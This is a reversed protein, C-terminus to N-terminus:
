RFDLRRVINTKDRLEFEEAEVSWSDDLIKKMSIYDMNNKRCKFAEMKNRKIINITKEEINEKQNRRKKQSGFLQKVKEKVRKKEEELVKERLMLNKEVDIELFNKREKKKKEIRKDRLFQRVSRVDVPKSGRRLIQGKKRKLNKKLKKKSNEEEYIRRSRASRNKSESIIKRVYDDTSCISVTNRRREIKRNNFYLQYRDCKMGEKKKLKGKKKNKSFAVSRSLRKKRIRLETDTRKLEQKLYEENLSLRKFKKQFVLINDRGRSETQIKVSKMRKHSSIENKKNKPTFSPTEKQFSIEKINILFQPPNQDTM